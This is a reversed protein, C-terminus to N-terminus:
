NSQFAKKFEEMGTTEEFTVRRAGLGGVGGGLFFAVRLSLLFYIFSIERLTGIILEMEWFRLIEDM